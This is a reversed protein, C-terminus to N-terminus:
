VRASRRMLLAGLLGGVFGGVHALYAVGGNTPRSAITGLESFVQMVIWSGIVFLAPVEAVQFLFWISVRNRPFFVLYAALVGSIAGSAGLMPVTSGPDGVIQAVSAAVGCALYFLLYRAHGLASEVNDGFIGLYVMNGLLHAWGAHLFMATFLTAPVPGGIPAHRAYAAPLLSWHGLFANLANAGQGQQALELLFVLVNAVILLINVIPFLTRRSNDDGLPIILVRGGPLLIGPLKARGHFRELANDGNGNAKVRGLRAPVTRGRHLAGGEM